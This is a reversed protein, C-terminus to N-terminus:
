KKNREIKVNGVKSSKFVYILNIIQFCSYAIYNCTEINYFHTNQYERGGGCVGIVDLLFCARSRIHCSVHGTHHGNLVTHLKNKLTPPETTFIDRQQKHKEKHTDGCWLRLLTQHKVTPWVTYITLWPHKCVHCRYLTERWLIQPLM